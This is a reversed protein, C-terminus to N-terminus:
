LPAQTKFWDLSWAPTTITFPNDKTLSKNARFYSPSFNQPHGALASQRWQPFSFSTTLKPLDGETDPFTSTFVSSKEDPTDSNWQCHFRYHAFEWLADKWTRERGQSFLFTKESLHAKVAHTAKINSDVTCRCEKICKKIHNNDRMSVMFQPISSYTHSSINNFKSKVPVKQLILPDKEVQQQVYHSWLRPLTNQQM